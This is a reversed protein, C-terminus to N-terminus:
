PCHPHHRRHCHHCRHHQWGGRNCSSHDWNRNLGPDNVRTVTVNPASKLGAAPVIVQEKASLAALLKHDQNLVSVKGQISRISTSGNSHVSISGVAEEGKQVPVSFGRAPRLTGSKQVSLKGAEFSSELEAPIRFKVEGQSLIFRDTHDFSWLSNPGIEFQSKNALTVSAIGEEVKVRAGRFIPFHSPNVEKWVNERAEFKVVGKSVMQGIPPEM